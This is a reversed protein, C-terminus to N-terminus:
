PRGSMPFLDVGWTMWGSMSAFERRARVRNKGVEIVRVFQAVSAALHFAPYDSRLKESGQAPNEFVSRFFRRCGQSHKRTNRIRSKGALAALALTL